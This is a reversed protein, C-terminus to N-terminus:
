TPATASRTGTAASSTPAPRRRPRSPRTRRRPPSSRATSTATTTPSTTPSRTSSGSRRRRAARGMWIPPPSVTWWGSSRPSSAACTPSTSHPCPSVEPRHHCPGLHVTGHLFPACPPPNPSSASRLRCPLPRSCRASRRSVVVAREVARQVPLERDDAEGPVPRRDRAAAVVRRGHAAAQLAQRREADVDGDDAARVHALHVLLQAGARTDLAPQEEVEGAAGLHVHDPRGARPQELPAGRGRELLLVQGGRGLGQELPERRGPQVRPGHGAVEVPPGDVEDRVPGLRRPGLHRLQLPADVLPHAGGPEVPQVAHDLQGALQRPVRAEGVGRDAAVHAVHVDAEGALAVGHAGDQAAEHEAAAPPRLVQEHEAVGEARHGVALAGVRGHEDRLQAAGDVDADARLRRTRRRLHQVVAAPRDGEEVDEM